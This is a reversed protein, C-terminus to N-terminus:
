PCRSDRVPASSDRTNWTGSPTQYKEGSVTRMILNCGSTFAFQEVTSNTEQAKRTYAAKRKINIDEVLAKVSASPSTVYGLYGDPKEGIAGSSRAAEYAPDRQALVPATVIAALALAGIASLATNKKIFEYM